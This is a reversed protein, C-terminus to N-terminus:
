CRLPTWQGQRSCSALWGALRVGDVDGVEIAPKGNNAVLTAMGLWLVVTNDKNVQISEDLKYNGPSLVDPRQM